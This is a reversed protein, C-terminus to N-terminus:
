AARGTLYRLGRLAGARAGGRRPRGREGDAHVVGEVAQVLVFVSLPLARRRAPLLEDKRREVQPLLLATAQRELDQVHALKGIRPVQEALARHLRPEIAHARVMTRILAPAVVDLRGGELRGLAEVFPEFMAAFHREVLAAVLAEKSPFYQYLSGVSVGATEAIRNTSARDYGEKVLVRAAAALLADVTARSREQHPLKRPTTRARPPM